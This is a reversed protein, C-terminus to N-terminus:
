VYLAKPIGDANIHSLNRFSNEYESGECAEELKLALIDFEIVNPASIFSM